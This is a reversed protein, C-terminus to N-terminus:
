ASKAAARDTPKNILAPAQLSTREAGTAPPAEAQGRLNQILVYISILLVWLPFVLSMWAITAVSLLLLLALGYGLFAMWRPAISTKLSITSTIIMFVGAMKMAYIDMLERIQARALLYAGMQMPSETGTGLLRIVAGATAATSFIMAAFLLGSGLFVTAFFRDEREGMRDRLVGIFWLFAVGAFPLLNLAFSIAKAHRIVDTAPGSPSAPISLRILLLSTILLCSFVIGAIAAARPTRMRQRISVRVDNAHKEM